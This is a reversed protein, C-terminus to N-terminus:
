SPEATISRGFECMRLSIYKTDKRAVTNLSESVVKQAQCGVFRFSLALLGDVLTQEIANITGACVCHRVIARNISVVLGHIWYLELSSAVLM